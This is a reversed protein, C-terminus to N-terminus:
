LTCKTMNNAIHTSTQKCSVRKRIVSQQICSTTARVRSSFPFIPLVDADVDVDVDVDVTLQEVDAVDAVDACLHTTDCFHTSM